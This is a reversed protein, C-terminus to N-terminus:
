FINVNLNMEMNLKVFLGVYRFMINNYGKNTDKEKISKLIIIILDKKKLERFYM